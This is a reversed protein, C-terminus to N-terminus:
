EKKISRTKSDTKVEVQRKSHKKLNCQSLLSEKETAAGGQEAGEQLLVAPQSARQSLHLLWRHSSRESVQSIRQGQPERQKARVGNVSTVNMWEISVQDIWEKDSISVAYRFQCAFRDTGAGRPVQQGAQSVDFLLLLFMRMERPSQHVIKVACYFPCINLASHPTHPELRPRTWLDCM